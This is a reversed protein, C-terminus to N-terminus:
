VIRNKNIKMGCKVAVNWCLFYKNCDTKIFTSDDNIIIYNKDLYRKPKFPVSILNQAFTNLVDNNSDIQNVLNMHLRLNKSTEEFTTSAYQLNNATENDKDSIILWFWLYHAKTIKVYSCQM